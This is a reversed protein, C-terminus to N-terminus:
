APIQRRAMFRRAALLALGGASFRGLPTLGLLFSAGPRRAMTNRRYWPSRPRQFFKSLILAGLAKKAFAM